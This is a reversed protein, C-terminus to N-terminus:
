LRKIIFKAVALADEPDMRGVPSSSYTSALVKGTNTILFESPQVFNRDEDWWAGIEDGMERTMGWAVPFNLDTAVEVSKDESDVSGAIISIGLDAMADRQKEFGVLQRRCYPWWHGRYFLVFAYPTNIDTPITLSAAGAISLDIVPFQEGKNLKNNMYKSIM